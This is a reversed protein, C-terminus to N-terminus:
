SKRSEAIQRRHYLFILQELRDSLVEGLSIFDAHCASDSSQRLEAPLSLPLPYLECLYIDLLVLQGKEPFVKGAWTIGDASMEIPLSEPLAQQSQMLQKLLDLVLNIKMDLRLLHTSTESNDELPERVPHELLMMSSITKLNKTQWTELGADVDLEKLAQWQLPVSTRFTLANSSTTSEKM